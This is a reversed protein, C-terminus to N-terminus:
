LFWYLVLVVGDQNVLADIHNPSSSRVDIDLNDWWLLALGGGLGSRPIAFGKNLRLKRKLRPFGDRDLRTKSLFLVKPGEKSALCCLKEVVEPIGLGRCNLSLIKM